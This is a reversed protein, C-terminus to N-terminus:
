EGVQLPGTFFPLVQLTSLLSPYIIFDEGVEVGVGCGAGWVCGCVIVFCNLSKGMQFGGV